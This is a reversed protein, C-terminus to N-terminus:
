IKDTRNPVGAAPALVSPFAVVVVFSPICAHSVLSFFLTTCVYMCVYTDRRKKLSFLSARVVHQCRPGVCKCTKRHAMKAAVLVHVTYWVDDGLHKKLEGLFM